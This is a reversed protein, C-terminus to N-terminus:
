ASNANNMYRSEAEAIGGEFKALAWARGELPLATFRQYDAEPLPWRDPPNSIIPPTENHTNSSLYLTAIEPERVRHTDSPRMPGRGETLWLFCVGLCTAARQASAAKLTKTKGSMWDNVSPRSVGCAAALDAQSVEAEEAAKRIREALTTMIPLGIMHNIRHAKVSYNPVGLMAPMSVFKGADSTISRSPPVKATALIKPM